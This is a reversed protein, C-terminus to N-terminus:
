LTKQTKRAFFSIILPVGFLILNNLDTREFSYNTIFILRHITTYVLLFSLTFLAYVYRRSNKKVFKYTTYSSLIGFFLTRLVTEYNSVPNRYILFALSSLFGVWFVFSLISLYLVILIDIIKLFRQM